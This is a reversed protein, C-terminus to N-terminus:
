PKKIHLGGGINKSATEQNQKEMVSLVGNRECFPCRIEQRLSFSQQVGLSSKGCTPCKFLVEM